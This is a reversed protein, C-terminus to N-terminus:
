LFFTYASGLITFTIATAGCLILATWGLPYVIRSREPLYKQFKLSALYFVMNVGMFAVVFANEFTSKFPTSKLCYSYFDTATVFTNWPFLMALGLFTMIFYAVNHKDKPPAPPMDASPMVEMAASDEDDM